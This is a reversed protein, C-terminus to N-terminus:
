IVQLILSLYYSKLNRVSVLCNKKSVSGEKVYKELIKKLFQLIKTNVFILEKFASSRLIKRCILDRTHLM